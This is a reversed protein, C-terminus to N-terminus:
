FGNLITALGQPDSIMAMHGADLDVVNVTGLNAIMKYQADPTISADRLLRV